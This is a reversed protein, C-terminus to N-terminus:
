KIACIGEFCNFKFITEIKKFGSTKLHKFNNTSTEPELTGKISIAKNHIEDHSFGQNLKFNYYNTNYIDQFKGNSGRIKEFFLFAGGDELSNFIKKILYKRQSYRLFQITYFSVILSSRKFKYKIIDENKFYLNQARNNKKAFNIMEKSLDLGFVNIKNLSNHRKCLKKTLKGTSCGLDYIICNEYVFNDSIELILEHCDSYYPVSLAVHKDFNKPISGNFNWTKKLSIDNGM